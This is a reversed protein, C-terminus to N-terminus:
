NIVFMKRLEQIGEQTECIIYYVGSGIGSKNLTLYQDDTSGEFVVQGLQNVFKVNAEEATSVIITSETQIANSILGTNGLCNKSSLLDTYEFAGDIDVMKLRYYRQKTDNSQVRVSYNLESESNGSASVTEVPLYVFGDFTYDL